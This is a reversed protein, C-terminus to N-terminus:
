LKNRFDNLIKRLSKFIETLCKECLGKQYTEKVIEGCRSCAKFEMQNKPLPHKPKAGQSKQM